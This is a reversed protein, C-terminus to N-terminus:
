PCNGSTWSGKLTVKRSPMRKPQLIWYCLDLDTHLDACEVDRRVRRAREHAEAEALRIVLQAIGAVGQFVEEALAARQRLSRPQKPAQSSPISYKGHADHLLHM